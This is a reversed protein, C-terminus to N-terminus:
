RDLKERKRINRDARKVAIVLLTMGVAFVIAVGMSWWNFHM